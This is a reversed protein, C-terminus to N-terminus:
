FDQIGHVVINRESSSEDQDSLYKFANEVESSILHSKLLTEDIYQKNAADTLNTTANLNEIKHINMDLNGTM